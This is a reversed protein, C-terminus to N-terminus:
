LISFTAYAIGSGSFMAGQISLQPPKTAVNTAPITMMFGVLSRGIDHGVDLRRWSPNLPTQAFIPTSPANNPTVVALSFVVSNATPTISPLTQNQVNSANSGLSSQDFAHTGTQEFFYCSGPLSSGFGFTASTDAATAKHVVVLQNFGGAQNIDVTWGAPPTITSSSFACILWATNGSAATTQPFTVVISTANSVLIPASEQVFTIPFTSAAAGSCGTGANTLDSCSIALLTKAQAITCAIPTAGSGTNNCMLSNAALNAMKALTIAGAVVNCNPLTGTLDGACTTSIGGNASPPFPPSQATVTGISLLLSLVFILKKM